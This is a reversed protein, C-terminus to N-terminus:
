LVRMRLIVKIIEVHANNLKINMGHMDSTNSSFGVIHV